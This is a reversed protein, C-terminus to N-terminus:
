DYTTIYCDLEYASVEETLFIEQFGFDQIEGFGDVKRGSLSKQIEGMICFPRFNVDKIVWQDYPVLVEIKILLDKTEKNFGSPTGNFARVIVMSNSTEKPGYRPIIKLLKQYIEKKIDEASLDDHALPDKDTYYLYKMLNQNAMLRKIIKMLNPGLEEYNRVAM